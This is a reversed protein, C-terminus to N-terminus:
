ADFSLLGRASDLGSVAAHMGPLREAVARSGDYIAADFGQYIAM